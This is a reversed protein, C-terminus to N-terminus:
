AHQAGDSGMQKVLKNYVGVILFTPKVVRRNRRAHKMATFRSDARGAAVAAFTAFPYACHFRNVFPRGVVIELVFAVVLIHPEVQPEDRRQPRPPHELEGAPAAAHRNRECLSGSTRKM